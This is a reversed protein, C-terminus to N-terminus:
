NDKVFKLIFIENAKIKQGNIKTTKTLYYVKVRMGMLDSMKVEYKTGDKMKVTYGKPLIGVFKQEKAGKKYSLTLERTDDNALTVEGTWTEGAYNSPYYGPEATGSQAMLTGTFLFVFGIIFIIKKM